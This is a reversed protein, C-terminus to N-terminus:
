SAAVGASATKPATGRVFKTHRGLVCAEGREGDVVRYVGVTTYALSGGVREARGEIEIVDGLKAPALYEVHIDVSVGTSLRGDVASVSMGGAWDVMTAAAGGHLSGGSNLMNSHVPIRAIFHGASAHVFTLSPQLLFAYIPSSLTRTSYIGQLTTVLEPSSATSPKPAVPLSFNPMTIDASTESIDIVSYLYPDTLDAIAVVVLRYRLSGIGTRLLPQSIKLSTTLTFISFKGFKPFLSPANTTQAAVLMLVIVVSTTSV